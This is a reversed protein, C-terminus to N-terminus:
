CYVKDSTQLCCFVKHYPDDLQRTAAVLFSSLKFLAESLLAISLLGCQYMIM